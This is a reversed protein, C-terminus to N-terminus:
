LTAGISPCSVVEPGEDSANLSIALRVQTREKVIASVRPSQSYVPHDEQPSTLHMRISM